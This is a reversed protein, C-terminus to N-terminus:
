EGIKVISFFYEDHLQLWDVVDNPDGRKIWVNEKESYDRGQTGIWTIFSNIYFLEEPTLIEQDRCIKTLIRRKVM